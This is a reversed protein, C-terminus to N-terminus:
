KMFNFANTSNGLNFEFYEDECNTENIRIKLKTGNLFNKIAVSNALDDILFVTKGDDSIYANTNYVIKEGNVVFLLDVNPNEDCFYTSTVYLVIAGDVNELKLLNGYEDKSYAIRYDGDFDSNVKKYTFQSDADYSLLILLSSLIIKIM